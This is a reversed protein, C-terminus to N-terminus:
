MAYNRIKAKGTVSRSTSFLDTGDQRLANLVRQEQETLKPRSAQESRGFFPNSPIKM